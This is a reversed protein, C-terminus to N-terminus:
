LSGDRTGTAYSGVYTGARVLLTEGPKLVSVAKSLSRFPSSRTGPNADDGTTAVYYSADEAWGGLMALLGLMMAPLISRQTSRM